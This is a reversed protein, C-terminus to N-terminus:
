RSAALEIIKKPAPIDLTVLLDRQPKLDVGDLAHVEAEGTGYTTVVGELRIM